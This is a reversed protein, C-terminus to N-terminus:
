NNSVFAAFTEVWRHMVNLVIGNGNSFILASHLGSFYLDNMVKQKSFLYELAKRGRYDNEGVGIAM